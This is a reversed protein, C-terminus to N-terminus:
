ENLARSGSSNKTLNLPVSWTVGDSSNSIWLEDGGNRTSRWVVWYTGNADQVMTPITDQLTDRSVNAPASWSPSDGLASPVLLLGFMLVLGAIKM